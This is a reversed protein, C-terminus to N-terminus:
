FFQFIMRPEVVVRPSTFPLKSAWPSSECRVVIINISRDKDDKDENEFDNDSSEDDGVDVELDYSPTPQCRYVVINISRDNDDKDVGKVDDDDKVDVEVDYCRLVITNISEKKGGEDGDEEIGVDDTMMVMIIKLMQMVIKISPAFAM